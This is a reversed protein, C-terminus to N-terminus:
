VPYYPIKFDTGRLNVRMYGAPTAPLASAGGAAGVTTTFYTADSGISLKGDAAIGFRTLPTQTAGASVSAMTKFNIQGSLEHAIESGAGTVIAVRNTGNWRVNSSWYAAFGSGGDAWVAGGTGIQIARFTSDWTGPTAGVGVNGPEDVVVRTTFTQISGATVSPATQITVLGGSQQITTAAGGLVSRFNTGDYYTNNGLGVGEVATNGWLVGSQGMEVTRQGTGWGRASFGTTVNGNVNLAVTGSAPSISMTGLESVAVRNAFTQNSGATVSPATYIYFAGGGVTVMTSAMTVIAKSNTGDWRTNDSLYTGTNTHSSWLTGQRGIQLVDYTNAWADASALTGIDVVGAGKPALQLGVDADSGIAALKVKGGTAAGVVSLGNVAANTTLDVDFITNGSRRIELARSASGAATHTVVVRVAQMAGSTNWTPQVDLTAKSAAGTYNPTVAQDRLHVAPAGVTGLSGTAFAEDVLDSNDNIDSVLALDSGAPKILGLNPTTPM